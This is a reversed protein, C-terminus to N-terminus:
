ERPLVHEIINVIQEDLLPCKFNYLYIDQFQRALRDIELTALRRSLRTEAHYHLTVEDDDQSYM